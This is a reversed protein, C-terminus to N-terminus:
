ISKALDPAIDQQIYDSVNIGIDAPRLVKKIEITAHGHEDRYEYLDIFRPPCVPQHEENLIIKVKPTLRRGQATSMVIGIDGGTIEVVSGIPYTGMCQIFQEILQGNFEDHRIKFMDSLADVTAMGHRYVQDTTIADYVDVIGVIQPLLELKMHDLGDPYGQGNPREHHHRIIDYVSESLKQQQSQLLEVGFETHRRMLAIESESLKGPKNLIDKPIRLKGIDHLLAGTGLDGLERENLGLHRGFSLALICVNVSHLATSVNIDRLHSLWLQADPNRVISKVLQEITVVLESLDARSKQSFAQYMNGLSIYVNNRVQGAVQYEQEFSVRVPLPSREDLDISQGAMKKDSVNDFAEVMALNNRERDVIVFDCTDIVQQLLAKDEIIFGQFMFPSDLWPRDLEHVYM